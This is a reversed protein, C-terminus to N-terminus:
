RWKVEMRKEMWPFRIMRFNWPLSELLIDYAKEEIILKYFEETEELKGPRQLFAQKLGEVSTNKLKPWNNKASEVMSMTIKQEEETLEVKAQVADKMDWGVMIKNLLLEHEPYDTKEYIAHQIVYIAKVHADRNKFKHSETLGLMTFLRPFWPSLLVIGANEVYVNEIKEM